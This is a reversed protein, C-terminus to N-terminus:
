RTWTALCQEAGYAHYRTVETFGLKAALRLSRDNATQTCLAVSEGPHVTAFWDLVAACAEAAYGRGWAHPLLLYGLEVEGAEPYGPSEADRADLTVTGIAAGDLEVVFFGARQGPVEPLSRELEGRDRAGGVYVGVEASSLLEIIAGRDRGESERLVLRETRVAGPPWAIENM